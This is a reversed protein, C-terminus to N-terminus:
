GHIRDGLADKVAQTARLVGHVELSQLTGVALAPPIDDSLYVGGVVNIDLKQKKRLCAELARFLCAWGRSWREFPVQAIARDCQDRAERFRNVVDAVCATGNM